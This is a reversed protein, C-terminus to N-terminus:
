YGNMNGGGTTPQHSQSQGPIGGPMSGSFKHAYKQALQLALQPNKKVYKKLTPMSELALAIEPSITPLIDEVAANMMAKEQRAEVGSSSLAHGKMQGMFSNALQKGLAGSIMELNTTKIESGDEMKIVQPGVFFSTLSDNIQEPIEAKQEEFYEQAEHKVNKIHYRAINSFKAVVKNLEKELNDSSTRELLKIAIFAELFVACIAAAVAIIAVM